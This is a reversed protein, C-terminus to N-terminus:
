AAAELPHAKLEFHGVDFRKGDKGLVGWKLGISEGIAGLRAWDPDKDDWNAKITGHQQFQGILCVDIADGTLHRGKSPDKTWSNGEAVLALQQALDRRTNIIIIPIRQEVARALLEFAKPKMEPSLSDLSRDLTM